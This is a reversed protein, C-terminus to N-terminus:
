LSLETPPLPRERGFITLSISTNDTDPAFFFGWGPSLVIDLDVQVAIDRAVIILCQQAGATGPDAIPRIQGALGGGGTILTARRTDRNIWQTSPSGIANTGLFGRISKTAIDSLVVRDLTLLVGSNNPNFIQIKSRTGAGGPGQEASGMGLGGGQLAWFEPREWPSTVIQVESGIVPVSPFEVGYLRGIASAPRPNGIANFDAM